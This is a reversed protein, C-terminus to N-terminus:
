GLIKLYVDLLVRSEKQWNFELIFAKGVEGRISIEDPTQIIEVLVSHLAMSDDPRVWWGAQLPGVFEQWLRFDSAVFPKGMSMYEFLKNPRASSHDGVDSLVALGIDSISIYALVEEYKLIGLFDVFNWGPHHRADLLVDNIEPGALWLRVNNQKNMLVLADLMTFLGRQRSMGGVYILRFVEADSKLGAAIQTACELLDTTLYPANRLLYARPAFRAIQGEQTVFTADAVRSLLREGLTVVLGLPKRLAGPVWERVM